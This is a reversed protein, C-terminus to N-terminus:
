IASNTCCLRILLSISIFVSLCLSLSHALCTTHAKLELMRSAPTFFDYVQPWYPLGHSPTLPFFSQIYTSWNRRLYSAPFFLGFVPHEGGTHYSLPFMYFNIAFKQRQRERHTEWIHTHMLCVYPSLPCLLVDPTRKVPFSPRESTPAQWNGWALHGALEWSGDSELM